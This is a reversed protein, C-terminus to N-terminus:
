HVTMSETYTASDNLNDSLTFTFSDTGTFGSAPTYGISQGGNTIVVTGHASAGSVGSVAVGNDGLPDINVGGTLNSLTYPNTTNATATQSFTQSPPLVDIENVTFSITAEATQGFPDTVEFVCSDSGFWGGRPQYTASLPSAGFTLTGNAPTAVISPTLGYADPDSANLTFVVSVGENTTVTQNSAM